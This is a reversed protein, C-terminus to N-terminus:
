RRHHIANEESKRMLHPDALALYPLFSRAADRRVWRSEEEKLADSEPAEEWRWTWEWLCAGGEWGSDRSSFKERDPYLGLSAPGEGRKDRYASESGNRHPFRRDTWWITLTTPLLFSLSLSSFFSHPHFLNFGFQIKISSDPFTFARVLWPSVGSWRTHIYLPSTKTKLNKNSRPASRLRTVLIPIKISESCDM